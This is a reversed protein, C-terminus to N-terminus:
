LDDDLNKSFQREQMQNILFEYFQTNEETNIKIINNSNKLKKREAEFDSGISSVYGRAALVMPETTEANHDFVQQALSNFRDLKVVNRTFNKLGEISRSGKYEVVRFKELMHKKNPSGISIMYNWVREFIGPFNVSNNFTASEITNLVKIQPKVLKVIPYGPLRACLSNYFKDCDVELFIFDHSSGLESGSLESLEEYVPKLRKCHECWTTFYKVFTYGTHNNISNYFDHVTNVYSVKALILLPFHIVLLLGVCFKM